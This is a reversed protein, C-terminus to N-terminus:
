LISNVIAVADDIGIRGDLNMDASLFKDVSMNDTIGAYLTNYINYATQADNADTINTNNVDGDNTIVLADGKAVGIKAGVEAQTLSSSVILYCYAEYGEVWYMPNGDYTVVTGEPLSQTVKLLWMKNNNLQLYEDVEANEVDVSTGIKEITFTLYGTVDAVTYTNDGNNVVSVNVKGNATDITATIEYAVGAEPTVTLTYDDGNAVSSVYGDAIGASAGMVVVTCEAMVRAVVIAIDGTIDAGDITYVGLADVTYDTYAIGGITITVNYGYGPAYPKTFTYDIGNTAIEAADLVQSAGSGTVTVNFSTGDGAAFTTCPLMLLMFVIILVASIMRRYM